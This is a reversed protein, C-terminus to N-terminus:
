GEPGMPAYSAKAVDVLSIMKDTGTVRYQGDKFVLDGADAEMMEAALKKGKDVITDAAVKLANGGVVMSRAGYTGRGIAVQATDGQV